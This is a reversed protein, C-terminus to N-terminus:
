DCIIFYVTFTTACAGIGINFSLTTDYANKNIELISGICHTNPKFIYGEPLDAILTIPGCPDAYIKLNNPLSSSPVTICYNDQSCQNVIIDSSPDVVIIPKTSKLNTIGCSLNAYIFLTVNKFIRRSDIQKVYVDEILVKVDLSNGSVFEPLMIYSTFPVEFHASHTTQKCEASVYEIIQTLIGKVITKYGTSILGEPNPCTVPTRIVNYSKIKAEINTSLIKKIDPKQQPIDLEEIVSFEKWATTHIPIMESIGNIIINDNMDNM